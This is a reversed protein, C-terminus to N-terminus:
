WQWIPSTATAPSGNSMYHVVTSCDTYFSDQGYNASQAPTATLIFCTGTTYAFNYGDVTLTTWTPILSNVAVGASCGTQLDCLAADANAQAITRVRQLARVQQQSALLRFYAPVSAAMLVSACLISIMIELLLIGFGNKKRM